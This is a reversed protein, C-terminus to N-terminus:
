SNSLKGELLCLEDIIPKMFSNFDKPAKPGPIISAILLNDKKVRQDPPLNANIFLVVWCDDCKQRFLQFGDVSGLLAIDRDDQFYGNQSLFKYQASDFVDGIIDDTNNAVYESRYSMQKARALDQYQITFQDQKSFYAVQARLKRRKDYREAKCYSCQDLREFDGTFSCCSNICMDVWNPKFPVM